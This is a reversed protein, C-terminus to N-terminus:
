EAARHLLLVTMDDPHSGGDFFATLDTKLDNMTQLAPQAFGDCLCSIFRKERFREGAANTATTVGRTYLGLTEGPGLTDESLTYEFGRVVGVAPMEIAGFPRPQGRGDVVIAGIRGARCHRLTGTAPDVMLVFCGVYRSQGSGYLLHNLHRLFVHPADGHLMAVRFSAHVQAMILPLAAGEANVHALMLGAIERGPPKMVDYVDGSNQEGALAYSAIQFQKWNPPDRPDLMEQMGRVVSLETTNVHAVERLQERLLTELQHAIHSGMMVFADLDSTGFRRTDRRVDAYIMGLVGLSTILPVALCSGVIGEEVRRVLIQQQRDICRYRLHMAMEPADCAEGSTYRGGVVDLDGSAQRRLGIWACRARFGQLLHSLAVDVLEHMDRCRGLELGARSLRAIQSPQLKEIPDGARKTFSGPPLPYKKIEALDAPSLRDEDGGPGALEARLYVQVLYPGIEISNEDRLPLRAVLPQGNFRIPKDQDLPEIMWSGEEDPGILLHHPSVYLDPLHVACGPRSGLYVAEDEFSRDTLIVNTDKERVVVRM